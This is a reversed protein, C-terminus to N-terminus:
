PKQSRCIVAVTIILGITWGIPIGIMTAILSPPAGLLALLVTAFVWAVCIAVVTKM